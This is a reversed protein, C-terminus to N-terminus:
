TAAGHRSRARAVLDAGEFRARYGHFLLLAVNATLPGSILESLTAGIALLVWAYGLGGLFGVLEPGGSILMSLLGIVFSTGIVTGAVATYRYRCLGASRRIAAIPGLGEVVVAPPIMVFFPLMPLAGLGGLVLLFAALGPSGALIAAIGPSLPVLYAFLHLWWAVLLSPGHRRLVTVVDALTGGGDRYARDGLATWAGALLPLVFGQVAAFGLLLPGLRIDGGLVAQAAAPNDLMGGIGRSVTADRQLFAVVLQLPVLVSLAVGVIRRGNARYLKFAGDLIDTFVLPGPPIPSPRLQLAPSGQPRDIPQQTLSPPPLVAAPGTAPAAAADPAVLWPIPEGAVIGEQEDTDM